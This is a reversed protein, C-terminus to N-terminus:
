SSACPSRHAARAAVRPLLARRAQLRELSECLRAYYRDLTTGRVRGPAPRIKNIVDSGVDGGVYGYRAWKGCPVDRLLRNAARRM